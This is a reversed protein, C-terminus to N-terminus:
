VEVCGLSPTPSHRQGWAGSRVLLVPPHHRAARDTRAQADTSARAPSRWHWHSDPRYPSHLLFGVSPQRGLGVGKLLTGERRTDHPETLCRVALSGHITYCFGWAMGACTTPCRPIRHFYLLPSAAGDRRLSVFGFSILAFGFSISSFRIYLFTCAAM